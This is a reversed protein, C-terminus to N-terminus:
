CATLMQIVYGRTCQMATGNLATSDAKTAAAPLVTSALIESGVDLVKNGPDTNGSEGTRGGCRGQNVSEVVVWHRIKKM